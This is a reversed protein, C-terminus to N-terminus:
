DNQSEQNPNLNDLALTAEKLNEFDTEDKQLFLETQENQIIIDEVDPLAPLDELSNLDFYSLFYNTTAYLIPRGIENKRGDEKVLDLAVLKSLSGSSNVGRIKDVEVRTIPQKYAIITLVELGANSLKTNVASQFYNALIDSFQPKTLFRYIEDNEALMISSSEDNSYKAKLDNVISKIAVNDFGTAQAIKEISIGEDGAVFILSEVQALNNM